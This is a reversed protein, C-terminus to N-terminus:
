YYITIITAVIAGQLYKDQSERWEILSKLLLGRVNKYRWKTIEENGSKMSERHSRGEQGRVWSRFLTCSFYLYLTVSANTVSLETINYMFTSYVIVKSSTSYELHFVLRVFASRKKRARAVFKYKPPM